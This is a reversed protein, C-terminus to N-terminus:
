IKEADIKDYEAHTGVFRIEVVKDEFDIEVILRYKNGTIKFRARDGKIIKAAPFDHLVDKSQKWDAESTVVIWTTLSKASDAHRKRFEDLKKLYVIIM